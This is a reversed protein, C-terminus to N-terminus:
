DWDIEDFDTTEGCMFADRAEAHAILDENKAIDDPALSLILQHVLKQHTEPLFDFAEFAKEKLIEM